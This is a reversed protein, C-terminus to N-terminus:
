RVFFNPTTETGAPGVRAFRLPHRWVAVGLVEVDGANGSPAGVRLASMATNADVPASVSGLEFVLAEDLYFRYTHDLAGDDVGVTLDVQVRLGYVVGPVVPLDAVDGEGELTTGYELKLEPTGAKITLALGDGPTLKGFTFQIADGAQAIRFRLQVTYSELLLGSTPYIPVQPEEVTAPPLLLSGIAEAPVGAITTWLARGLDFLDIFDVIAVEIRESQPRSLRVLEVLLRRDLTGDDAVRLHSLFEDDETVEGGIIWPDHGDEEVGDHTEGVIWRFDFWSQYVPSRGTLLRTWEVLGTETGRRNWLPIAVKILKRLASEDLDNTIADLESTFGVQWALYRLLDARCTAPSDLDPLSRARALTKKWEEEPGHLLRQLLLNGERADLDRIPRILMSYISPVGEEIFEDAM